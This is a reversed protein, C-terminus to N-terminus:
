DHISKGLRGVANDVDDGIHRWDARLGEASNRYPYRYLLPAGLVKLVSLLGGTFNEMIQM